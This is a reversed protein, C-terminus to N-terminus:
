LKAVKDLALLGGIKLGVGWLPRVKTAVKQIGDSRLNGGGSWKM